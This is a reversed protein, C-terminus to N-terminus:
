PHAQGTSTRAQSPLRTLKTESTVQVPKFAVNLVVSGIGGAKQDQAPLATWRGAVVAGAEHEADGILHPRQMARQSRKAAIADVHRFDFRAGAFAFHPFIKEEDILPWKLSRLTALAM